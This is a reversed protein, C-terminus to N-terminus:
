SCRLLSTRGLSIRPRDSQIWCWMRRWGRGGRGRRVGVVSSRAWGRDGFQLLRRQPGRGGVVTWGRDVTM